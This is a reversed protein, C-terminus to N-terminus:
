FFLEGRKKNVDSFQNRMQFGNANIVKYVNVCCILPQLLTNLLRARLM